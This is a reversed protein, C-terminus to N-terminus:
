ADKRAVAVRARCIVADIRRAALAHVRFVGQSVRELENAIGCLELRLRTNEDRLKEEIPRADKAIRDKDLRTLIAQLEEDTMSQFAGEPTFTAM